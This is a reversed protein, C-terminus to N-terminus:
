QDATFHKHWRLQGATAVKTYGLAAIILDNHYLETNGQAKLEARSGLKGGYFTQGVGKGFAGAIKNPNLYPTAAVLELNPHRTVGDKDVIAVDTPTGTLCWMYSERSTFTNEFGQTKKYSGSSHSYDVYSMLESPKNEQLFAKQLRTAAGHIQVDAKIVLRLGEWVNADSTVKKMNWRTLCYQQIALLERTKPERLGYSLKGTGRASGQIHFEKAFADAEKSPIKELLLRKAAFKRSDLGLRSNFHSLMRPIAGLEWPYVFYIEEGNAGYEQKMAQLEHTTADLADFVVTVNDVTVRTPLVTKRLGEPLEEAWSLIARALEKKDTEFSKPALATTDM